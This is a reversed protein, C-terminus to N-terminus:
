SGALMVGAVLPVFSMSNVLWAAHKQLLMPAFITLIWFCFM